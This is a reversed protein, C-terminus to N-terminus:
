PVPSSASQKLYLAFPADDAEGGQGEVLAGRPSRESTPWASASWSGGRRSTTARHLLYGVRRLAGASRPSARKASRQPMDRATSTERLTWDLELRCRSWHTGGTLATVQVTTPADLPMQSLGGRGVLVDDSRRYATWKHVRGEGPSWSAGYWAAVVPDQHLRVLDEAHEPGIPELRLRATLCVGDASSM